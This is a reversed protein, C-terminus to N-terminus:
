VSSGMMRLIRHFMTPQKTIRSTTSTASDGTFGSRSGAVPGSKPVPPDLSDLAAALLSALEALKVSRELACLLSALLACLETETMPEADLADEALETDASMDLADCLALLWCDLTDDADDLACLESLADCLLADLMTLLADLTLLACLEDRLLADLVALLIDDLLADDSLRAGIEEDEERREDEDLRLKGGAVAM